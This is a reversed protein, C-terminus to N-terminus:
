TTRHPHGSVSEADADALLAAHLRSLSKALMRSVQMQSVGLHAAIQNQTLDSGYRLAIVRRQPEPLEALRGALAERQDVADIGPDLAGLADILHRHGEGAPRHDLSLPRYANASREAERIDAPDVDLRTALEATTPSRHLAHMLAETATGVRPGLEQLRQPIRVGWGTDRFYRKLEGLITPIAYNAFPRGRTADFGDVAKILGIAAVQSLDALPQGRGAFRRALYAAMPLSCEIALARLAVRQDDGPAFEGLRALLADPDGHSPM